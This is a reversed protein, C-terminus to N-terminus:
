NSNSDGVKIEKKLLYLRQIKKYPTMTHGTPNSTWQSMIIHAYNQAPDYIKHKCELPVFGASLYNSKRM